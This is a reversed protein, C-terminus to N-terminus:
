DGADSESLVKGKESSGTYEDLCRGKGFQQYSFGGLFSLRKM